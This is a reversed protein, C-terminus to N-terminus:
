DAGDRGIGGDFERREPRAGPYGLPSMNCKDSCFPDYDAKVAQICWTVICQGDPSPSPTDPPQQDQQNSCAWQQHHRATCGPDHEETAAQSCKQIWCPVAGDQLMCSRSCYPEHPQVPEQGCDHRKCEYKDSGGGVGAGSKSQMSQSTRALSHHPRSNLNQMKSDNQRSGGGSVRSASMSEKGWPNLENGNLPNESSGWAEVNWLNGHLSFGKRLDPIPLLRTLNYSRGRLQGRAGEKLEGRKQQAVFSRLWEAPDLDEAGDTKWVDLVKKHWPTQRGEPTM